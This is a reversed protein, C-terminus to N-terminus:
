PREFDISNLDVQGTFEKEEVKRKLYYNKNNLYVLQKNLESLKVHMNKEHDGLHPM